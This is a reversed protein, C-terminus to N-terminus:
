KAGKNEICRTFTVTPPTKDAIQHDSARSPDSLFGRNSSFLPEGTKKQEQQPFTLRALAGASYNTNDDTPRKNRDIVTKAPSPDAIPFLAMQLESSNQIREEKYNIITQKCALTDQWTEACSGAVAPGSAPRSSRRKEGM